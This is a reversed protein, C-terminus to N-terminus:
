SHITDAAGQKKEIELERWSQRVIKTASHIFLSAMIAAVLLDPWASDTAAIGSAALIVALNGIADNRSCLWVSRVNSDGDKFKLLLVASIVNAAFAVFGITGMMLAEPVGEVFVRYVTSGLVWAAIVFLSAGKFLGAKARTALPMGIVIFSITYTATDGLFDLSDALLAMSGSKIGGVLEVFFMAANIAIIIILVRKYAYSSGDFNQSASCGCEGSM